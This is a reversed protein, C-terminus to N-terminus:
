AGGPARQLARLRAPSDIFASLMPDRVVGGDDLDGAVAIPKTLGLVDLLRARRTVRRVGRHAPRRRDLNVRKEAVALVELRVRRQLFRRSTQVGRFHRVRSSLETFAADALGLRQQLERCNRPESSM